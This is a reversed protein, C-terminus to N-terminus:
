CWEICLHVVGKKQFSTIWSAGIVDAFAALLCHSLEKCDKISVFLSTQGEFMGRRVVVSASKSAKPTLLVIRTVNEVLNKRDKEDVVVPNMGKVM